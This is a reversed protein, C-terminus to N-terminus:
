AHVGVVLAVLMQDAFHDIQRQAITLNWDNGITKHILGKTGAADFDCAGVVKVVVGARHTMTQGQDHDERKVCFDAILRGRLKLAHITEIGALGNDGFKFLLSKQDFNVCM